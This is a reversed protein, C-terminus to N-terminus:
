VMKVERSKKLLFISKGKKFLSKSKCVNICCSKCLLASFLSFKILRIYGISGFKLKARRGYTKPSQQLYVM